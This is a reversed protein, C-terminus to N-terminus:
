PLDHLQSRKVPLLPRPICSTTTSFKPSALFRLILSITKPHAVWIRLVKSVKSMIQSTTALPTM